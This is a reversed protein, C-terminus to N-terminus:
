RDRLVAGAAASRRALWRPLLSVLVLLVGAAGLYAVTRRPDRGGEGLASGALTYAVTAPLMCVWSVLVYPWFRLRTLGYAYNQLNYPFLPVLRTVALIRWGHEAVLADIRALRPSRAVWGEVLGRLAHRAVLFAAAAGLTAALSVYAAGLVPGFALGGLLTLPLAPVFVLKLLVYGAVYAVPGWAGLGDLWRTLRALGDATLAERLGSAWV